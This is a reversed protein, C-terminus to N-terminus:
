VVEIGLQDRSVAVPCSPTHAITEKDLKVACFLCVGKAGLGIQSNGLMSVVLPDAKATPGPAAGVSPRPALEAAVLALAEAELADHAAETIPSSYKLVAGAAEVNINAECWDSGKVIKIKTKM